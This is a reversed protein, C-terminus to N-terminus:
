FHPSVYVIVFVFLWVVDVFHWYMATVQVGLYRKEDFHGLGARVQIVALMVLGALVHAGHLGTITYFLSTYANIQATFTERGYEFLQIALFTAGLAFSVAL